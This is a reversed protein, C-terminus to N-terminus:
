GVVLFYIKPHWVGSAHASRAPKKSFFNPAIRAPKKSFFDPAIRAPKILDKYSIIVWRPGM